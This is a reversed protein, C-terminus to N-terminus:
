VGIVSGPAEWDDIEVPPFSIIGQHICIVWECLHVMGGWGLVCVRMCVRVCVWVCVYVTLCASIHYCYAGPLGRGRSWSRSWKWNSCILGMLGTWISDDWVCLRMLVTVGAWPRCVLVLASDLMLYCATCSYAAYTPSSPNVHEAPPQQEVMQMTICTDVGLHVSHVYRRCTLTM